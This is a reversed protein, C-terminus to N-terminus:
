HASLLRAAGAKPPLGASVARAVAGKRFAGRMWANEHLWQGQVNSKMEAMVQLRMAEDRAVGNMWDNEYLQQVNNQLEVMVQLRMADNMENLNLGAEQAHNEATALTLLAAILALALTRNNLMKMENVM